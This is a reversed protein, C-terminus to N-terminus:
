TRYPTRALRVCDADMWCRTADAFLHEDESDRGQNVVEMGHGGSQGCRDSEVGTAHGHSDLDTMRM